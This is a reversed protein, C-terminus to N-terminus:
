RYVLVPIPSHTVVKNTESGLVLAALGRRGHAAMMILDCKEDKAADIIASWINDSEVLLRKFRVDASKAAAEIRDLHKNGAARAAERMREQLEIDVWPIDADVGIMASFTSPIIHIGTIAAGLSRALEVCTSAAKQALESGDTPLLIHKFV